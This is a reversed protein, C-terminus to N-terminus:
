IKGIQHTLTNVINASAMIEAAEIAAEKSHKAARIQSAPKKIQEQDEKAQFSAQQDATEIAKVTTDIRGQAKHVSIEKDLNAMVLRFVQEANQKAQRSAFIDGEVDQMETTANIKANIIDLQKQIADIQATKRTPIEFERSTKRIEAIEKEIHVFDARIKKVATMVIDAEIEKLQVAVKDADLELNAVQVGVMAKDTQLEIQRAAERATKSELEKIDTEVRAIELNTRALDVDLMATSVKRSETDLETRTTRNKTEAIDADIMAKDTETKILGTEINQMEANAENVSAPHLSIQQQVQKKDQSIEKNQLTMNQTDLQVVRGEASVDGKKLTLEKKRIGEEQIRLDIEVGKTEADKKSLDVTRGTLLEEKKRLTLEERTLIVQQIRLATELFANEADKIRLQIDQGALEAERTQYEINLGSLAIVDAQHQLRQNDIGIEGIKLQVERPVLAADVIQNQIEMGRIAAKIKAQKSRLVALEKELIEIEVYERNIAEEAIRASLIEIEAEIKILAADAKVRLTELAKADVDLALEKADFMAKQSEIEEGKVALGQAHLQQEITELYRQSAMELVSRQQEASLEAMNTDFQDIIQQLQEDTIEVLYTFGNKFGNAYLGIVMRRRDTDMAGVFCHTFPQWLGAERERAQRFIRTMPM